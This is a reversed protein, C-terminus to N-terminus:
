GLGRGMRHSIKVWLHPQQIGYSQANRFLGEL